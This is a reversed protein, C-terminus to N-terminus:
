VLYIQKKLVSKFDQVSKQLVYDDPDLGSEDLVINILNLDKRFKFKDLTRQAAEQGAEDADRIFFINNTYRTLLDLHQQTFLTGCTAVCNKIQCTRTIRLAAFYGECVFVFGRNRIHPIAENLLFLNYKKPYSSNYYKPGTYKDTLPRGAVAIIDGNINRIPFILRDFFHSFINKKSIFGIASQEALKPNEKILSIIRPDDKDCYGWEFDTPEFQRKKIYLSVFTPKNLSCINWFEEIFNSTDIM